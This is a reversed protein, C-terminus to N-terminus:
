QASWLEQQFRERSAVHLRQTEEMATLLERAKTTDHGDHQLKGIMERQQAILQEGHAILQEIEMLHQEIMARSM